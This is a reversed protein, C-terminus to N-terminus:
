LNVVGYRCNGSYKNAYTYEVGKLHITKPFKANGIKIYNTNSDQAKRIFDKDFEKTWISYVPEEDTVIYFELFRVIGRHSKIKFVKSKADQDWTITHSETVKWTSNQFIFTYGRKLDM